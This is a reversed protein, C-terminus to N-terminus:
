RAEFGKERKLREAVDELSQGYTQYLRTFNERLQDWEQTTHRHRKKAQSSRNAVSESPSSPATLAPLLPRHHAMM